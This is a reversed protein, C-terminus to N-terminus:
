RGISGKKIQNESITLTNDEINVNAQLAQKSKECFYEAFNDDSEKGIYIVNDKYIIDEEKFALYDEALM